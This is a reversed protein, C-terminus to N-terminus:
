TPLIYKTGCRLVWGDIHKQRPALRSDPLDSHPHSVLEYMRQAAAAKVVIHYYVIRMVGDARLKM